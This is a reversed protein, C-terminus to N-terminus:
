LGFRKMVKLLAEHGPNDKLSSEWIELAANKKDMVWLVEGLHAAIEPDKALENARRLHDAAQQLNGLRYQVWGMSDVVAADDPELKIATEIYKLAETYRTTRDALTYGLANLVQANNPEIKLIDQLDKEVMDLNGLKEAVLARAYRISTESPTKDLVSSFYTIAEDLHGQERLLDGEMLQLRVAEKNNEARISHLYDNAAPYKGSDALLIVVRIQAEFYFNGRKVASYHDIAGQLDKNLEAVQGLYYHAEVNRQGLKVLRNFYKSAEKPKNLQLALIGTFYNIDVHDPAQKALKVFQEYAKDLQRAEALMRAYRLGVELNDAQEGSVLKELYALAADRGDKLALIQSKLLIADPWDSRVALARDLASLAVDFQAQRMALHAYAFLADADKQRTEILKEMLSLALARNPERALQSAIQLFAGDMQGQHELLSLARQYYVLAEVVKESRLLLAAYMRAAEANETDISAWLEAAALAKEVNQSYNAIQAAREAAARDRTTRAVELYNDIAVDFQGRQAALEAVLLQYLMASSIHTEVKTEGSLDLEEREETGPTSVLPARHMEAEPAASKSGISSCATLIFLPFLLFGIRTAIIM